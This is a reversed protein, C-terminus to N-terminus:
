VPASSITTLLPQLRRMTNARKRILPDIMFHLYTHRIDDLRLNAATPSVTLFYDAGYNGANVPGPAAMPEVDVTFARGLHSSMPLRLYIETALLMKTVPM